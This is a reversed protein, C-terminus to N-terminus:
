KMRLARYFIDIDICIVQVLIDIIIEFFFIM